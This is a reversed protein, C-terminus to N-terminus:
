PRSASAGSASAGTKPPTSDKKPTLWDVAKSLNLTAGWIFAPARYERHKVGDILTDSKVWLAGVYPSVVDFSIIKDLVPIPNERYGAIIGVQDMPRTSAQVMAGFYLGRVLRSLFGSTTESMDSIAYNAGIFFSTPTQPNLTKTESDYESQVVDASGANASLFFHEPRGTVL